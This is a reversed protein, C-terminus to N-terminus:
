KAETTLADAAREANRKFIAAALARMYELTKEISYAHVMHEDKTVEDATVVCRLDTDSWDISIVRKRWGIVICGQEIRVLWWPSRFRYVADQLIQEDTETERPPFYQNPLQWLKLMPIGALAFLGQVEARKM